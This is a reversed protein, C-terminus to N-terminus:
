AGWKVRDKGSPRVLGGPCRLSVLSTQIAKVDSHGLSLLALLPRLPGPFGPLNCSAGLSFLNFGSM